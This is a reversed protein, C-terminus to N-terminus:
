YEYYYYKINKIKKLEKLKDKSVNVMFLSPGSGTLYLKGLKQLNNYLNDFIINKLNLKLFANGINLIDTLNNSYNNVVEPTQMDFQQYMCKTDVHYNPFTILLINNLNNINIARLDDGYNAIVVPKDYSFLPIDSGFNLCIDILEDNTLNLSFEKNIFNIITYANSSSGGLGAGIPINKILKVHYNFKINFNKEFFEIIRDIINNEIKINCKLKYSKAKTIKIVDYLGYFPVVVSNIQHLLDGEKKPYVQLNLNIKPYSYYYM